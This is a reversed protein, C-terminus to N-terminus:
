DFNLADIRSADVVLIHGKHKVFTALGTATDFSAFANVSENKSNILVHDVGKGPNLTTLLESIPNLIQQVTSATEMESVRNKEIELLRNVEMESM